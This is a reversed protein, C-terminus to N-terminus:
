RHKADEKELLNKLEKKMGALSWGDHFGDHALEMKLYAIRKEDDTM